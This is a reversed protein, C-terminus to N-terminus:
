NQLLFKIRERGKGSKLFLEERTADKKNLFAEYYILKLPLRNKTALAKGKQHQSFRRKVDATSGIYFKDDKKSLLIYVYYMVTGKFGARPPNGKPGLGM